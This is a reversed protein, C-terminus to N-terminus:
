IQVITDETNHFCIKPIQKKHISGIQLISNRKIYEVGFRLKTLLLQQFNNKSKYCKTKYSRYM